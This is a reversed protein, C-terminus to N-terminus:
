PPNPHPRTFIIARMVGGCGPCTFLTSTPTRPLPIQVRLLIQLLGRKTKANSHLFGFDRVRRLRKPLVHLMLRWLFDVLALTRYRCQGTKGEIYQFTITQQVHDFAVIDSPRIVGRYLYRALYKLAPLGNGAHQCHVVWKDPIGPPLEVGAKQLTHLFRARFVSALNFGNFLYHGKLSRWQRRKHDIAAGPVILHLHPHYDLRRNHTHLVATAGLSGRLEAHNRAFSELTAISTKFLLDYIAGPQRYALGRLVAPLTFTILFYPVPLLKARQRELWQSCTHHQCQPCSRHGCSRQRLRVEGCHACGVQTAGLSGSRCERLAQLARRHHATLHVGHQELLAPTGIQILEALTPTTM